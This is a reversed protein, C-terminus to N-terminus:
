PLSQHETLPAGKSIGSGTLLHAQSDWSQRSMLNEARDVPLKIERCM